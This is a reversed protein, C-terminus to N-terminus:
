SALPPSRPSSAFGNWALPATESFIRRQLVSHANLPPLSVDRLSSLEHKPLESAQTRLSVEMLQPMRISMYVGDVVQADEMSSSTSAASPLQALPTPEPHWFMSACVLWLILIIWSHPVAGKAAHVPMATDM